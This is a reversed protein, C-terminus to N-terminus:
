CMKVTNSRPIWWFPEFNRFRPHCHKYSKPSHLM